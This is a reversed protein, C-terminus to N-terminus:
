LQIVFAVSQEHMKNSERVTTHAEVCESDDDLKVSATLTRVSTSMHIGVVM